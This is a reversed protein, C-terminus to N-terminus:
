EVGMQKRIKRGKIFGAPQTGEIFRKCVEGNNYWLKNKCANSLATILEPTYDIISKKRNESILMRSEHSHHKGFMGNDKGFLKPNDPNSKGYRHNKEGTQALSKKRSHEESFKRGQLKASVQKKWADTKITSGLGGPSMNYVEPNKCFDETVIEAEKLFAEERTNFYELIECKFNEIGYKQIADKLQKGSGIYGDSINNTSHAGIYYKNTILNTTKYIYHFM